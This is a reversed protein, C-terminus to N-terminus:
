LKGDKEYLLQWSILNNKTMEKVAQKEDDTKCNELAAKNLSNCLAKVEDETVSKGIQPTQDYGTDSGEFMLERLTQSDALRTTASARVFCGNELGLSKIYYPTHLGQHIDVVIVTKKEITQLLVECPILPTCNNYIM